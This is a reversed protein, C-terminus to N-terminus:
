PAQASAEAETLGPGADPIPGVAEAWLAETPRGQQRAEEELNDRAHLVLRTLHDRADNTQALFGSMLQDGEIEGAAFRALAEAKLRVLEGQLALLTPLDMSPASELEQARREVEAVKLIYGQFSRDRLRRVRQRLWQWLCFLGGLVAAALSAEKEALDILDEAIVPRNRQQYRLAGEHWEAEPMAQLLGVELPPEDAHAFPSEFVVELLREVPEPPVGARAVLLMRTGLTTTPRLPVPPERDYTLAPIVAERVHRHVVRGQGDAPRWRAFADAYPLPALRYGRTEVLATAVRSPITSVMFAADPLAADDLKLLDAYGHETARYEGPDLGAFELVEVALRHTGSGPTSLNIAKGRLAVPGQAEVEALLEPGKVLLHLPEDHLAAVQRIAEAQRDGLALGGQVMALDLGSGPEALHQLAEESGQTEVLRLNLGRRRAESVLARAYYSREGQLSGATLTLDWAKRRPPRLVAVAVVVAALGIAVILWDRAITWFRLQRSM